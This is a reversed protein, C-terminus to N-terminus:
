VTKKAAPNCFCLLTLKTSRRVETSALIPVLPLNMKVLMFGLTDFRDWGSMGRDPARPEALGLPTLDLSAGLEAETDEPGPSIRVDLPMTHLLHNTLITTVWRGYNYTESNWTNLASLAVYKASMGPSPFSRTGPAICLFSAAMHLDLPITTAQSPDWTNVLNWGGWDGSRTEEAASAAQRTRKSSGEPSAAQFGTLDFKTNTHSLDTQEAGRASM